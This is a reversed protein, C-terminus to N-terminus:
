ENLPNIKFMMDLFDHYTDYDERNREYMSHIEDHDGHENMWALAYGAEIKYEVAKNVVESKDCEFLASIAAISEDGINEFSGVIEENRQSAKRHSLIEEVEKHTEKSIYCNLGLRAKTENYSIGRKYDRRISDLEDDTLDELRRMRSANVFQSPSITNMNVNASNLNTNTNSNTNLNNNSLAKNVKGASCGVKEAIERQTAEPHEEKYKKIAETQEKNEKTFGRARKAQNADITNKLGCVLMQTTPDDSEKSYLAYEILAELYDYAQKEWMNKKVKKAQELYSEFFSFCVNRKFEKTRNEM